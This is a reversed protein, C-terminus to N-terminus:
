MNIHHLEIKRGKKTEKSLKGKVGNGSVKSIFWRPYKVVANIVTQVTSLHSMTISPLTTVYQYICEHVSRTIYLKHSHSNHCSIGKSLHPHIHIQM